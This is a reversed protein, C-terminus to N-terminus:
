EAMWQRLTRIIEDQIDEPMTAIRAKHCGGPEVYIRMNQKQSCDLWTLVGSASWPDAEGYIFLHRPDNTELYEVTREYLTPDFAIDRLEEPLMLQPLYGQSTRISQWKTLGKTSYGYYGLERAAQVFFPTFASPCSFYEPGANKVFYDWWLSDPDQLTPMGDTATGWQWLAFPLEMVCFDYIDAASVNFHYDKEQALQELLPVFREKRKMLEQEAQFIQKRQAKTGVQKALFPEHRGDEVARNLPAVYSVSVDVDEPYTARYFMTTQGGKSIGTSLWKGPFVQGFAQRVHHLDALSNDVTMYDWNCPQPVSEAFYRYECVIVNADLLRCLEEEYDPSLAYHAYYGETVMVTPRDEGRLGLILRQTFMGAQPNGADVQQSIRLVYKEAFKSTELAEVQSVGDVLLLKRMFATTDTQAQVSLTIFWALLFAQRHIRKM